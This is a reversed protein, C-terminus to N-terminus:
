SNKFDVVCARLMDELSQITREAQGDTHPHFTTSLHVQTGLGKQFAEYFYSTFQTGRDLIISLPVSHLRVLERLYLSVYDKSSYSNHVPFFHASKIMKDIIVWISDHQHLTHPLGKVFDTNM